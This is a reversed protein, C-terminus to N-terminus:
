VRLGLQNLGARLKDEANQGAGAPPHGGPPLGGSLEATRARLAALEKDRAAIEKEAADAKAAKRSLKVFEAVVAPGNALEEFVNRMGFTESLTEAAAKFEGMVGPDRKGLDPFEKLVADWSAAQAAQREGQAQRRAQERAYGAQALPLLERAATEIDGSAEGYERRRAKAIVAAIEAPDTANQLRDEIAPRYKEDLTGAEIQGIFGLLQEATRARDKLAKYRERWKRYFEPADAGSPPAAPLEEPEQGAQPVQPPTEPPAAPKAAPPTQAEQPVPRRLEDLGAALREEATPTKATPPSGAPAETPTTVKPAPAGAEAVTATVAAPQPATEKPEVTATVNDSM